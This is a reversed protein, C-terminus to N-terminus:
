PAESVAGQKEESAEEEVMEAEEVRYVSTAATTTLEERVPDGELPKEKFPGCGTLLLLAPILRSVRATRM